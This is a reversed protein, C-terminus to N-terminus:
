PVVQHHSRNMQFNFYLGKQIQAVVSCHLLAEVAQAAVVLAAAPDAVVPAVQPAVAPLVLAPAAVEPAAEVPAVVAPAASLQNVVLAAAPAASLQAVVLAAAPLAVQAGAAAALVAPLHHYTKVYVIQHQAQAQLQLLGLLVLHPFFFSLIPPPSLPVVRV